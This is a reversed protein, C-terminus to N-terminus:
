IKFSKQKVFDEFVIIISLKLLFIFTPVITNVRNIYDKLRNM